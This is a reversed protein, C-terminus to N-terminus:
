APPQPVYTLLINGSNFVRSSTLKLKYKENLGEFLRTGKGIVVPAVMLRFEDVLGLRMLSVCLANSGFIALPKDSSQKLKIIEDKNVEKELKANEWHPIAPLNTLTRSFVIKPLTNMLEAVVPDNKRPGETPWYGSMLDYTTHGFLLTGVTKTQAIAFDNFEPNVNHWSLDHNPGEFFGDVSVMMFLFLKSM